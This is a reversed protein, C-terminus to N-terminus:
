SKHFCSLKLILKKFKLFEGDVTHLGNNLGDSRDILVTFLDQELVKVLLINIQDALFSWRDELVKLLERLLDVILLHGGDM